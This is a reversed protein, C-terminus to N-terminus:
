GPPPFSRNRYASVTKRLGAELTVGPEWDLLKRAKSIDVQLCACLRRGIDQRGLLSAAFSILGPPVPFLLVSKNMAKGLLTMLETTSVDQGDAVLFLQNAAAPHGICIVILDVLNDIAVLSRKNDISGLPLPFGREIWRMMALFNGKVDPGYVLPPRIIVIEMGTEEAVRRLGSETEWKSIAYPEEPRPTDTEAFPVGPDTSEGNVKISSIFIFRRVGAVSAQRALNLTGECNVERFESLEDSERGGTPRTLAAAHIVVDTEELAQSWNTSAGLNGVIVSRACFAQRVPPKRLAMVLRYCDKGSLRRAVANGVFGSAGTLLVTVKDCKNM